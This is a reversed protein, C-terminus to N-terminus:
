KLDDFRVLAAWQSSHMIKRKEIAGDILAQSVTGVLGALASMHLPAGALAAITSSFTLSAVSQWSKGLKQLADLRAIKIKARLDRVAPNVKSRVIDLSQRKLDSPSKTIDISTSLESVASRFAELEGEHKSRFALIDEIPLDHVIPLYTEVITTGLLDETDIAPTGQAEDGSSTLIRHAAWLADRLSAQSWVIPTGAAEFNAAAVTLFAGFLAVADEERPGDRTSLVASLMAVATEAPFKGAQLDELKPLGLVVLFTTLLDLLSPSLDRRAQRIAGTFLPDATKFKGLNRDTNVDPEIKRVSIIERITKLGSLLGIPDPARLVNAEVLPRVIPQAQLVFELYTLAREVPVLSDEPQNRVIILAEKLWREHDASLVLMSSTVQNAYLANAKLSHLFPDGFDPFWLVNSGLM